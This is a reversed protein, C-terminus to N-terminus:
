SLPLGVLWCQRGHLRVASMALFILYNRLIIFSYELECTFPTLTSPSGGGSIETTM